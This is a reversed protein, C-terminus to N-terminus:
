RPVVAHPPAISRLEVQPAGGASTSRVLMKDGRIDIVSHGHRSAGLYVGSTDVIEWEWEVSRRECRALRLWLRGAHDAIMQDWAFPMPDGEKGFENIAKEALEVPASRYSIRILALVSDTVVARRTTTYIARSEGDPSFALVRGNAQDAVFLTRGLAAELGVVACELPPGTTVSGGSQQYTVRFDKVPLQGLTSLTGSATDFVAFVRPSGEFGGRIAVPGKGAMWGVFALGSANGELRIDRVHAGERSYLSVQRRRSDYAAVNSDAEFVYRIFRFEGPGDGPRGGHHIARGGPDLYLLEDRNEIVSSGDGFLQGKFGTAIVFPLNGATTDGLSVAYSPAGIEFDAGSPDPTDARGSDLCGVVVFALFASVFTVPSGLRKRDVVEM